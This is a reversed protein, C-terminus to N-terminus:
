VDRGALRISGGVIAGGVPLLGLLALGITTKGCGSEGVLGVTEGGAISFTVGDVAHVVSRRLAIDVRLDQVELVPTQETM